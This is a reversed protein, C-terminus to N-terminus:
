PRPGAAAAASQRAAPPFIATWLGVELQHTTAPTFAKEAALARISEPMTRRQGPPLQNVAFADAGPIGLTFKDADVHMDCDAVLNPPMLVLTADALRYGAPQTDLLWTLTYARGDRPDVLCAYRVMAPVHEGHRVWTAPSDVIAMTPSRAVILIQNLHEETKELVMSAVWSLNAGLQRYSPHSHSLITDKGDVQTGQGIALRELQFRRQGAVDHAGVKILIANFFLGALKITSQSVKSVDGSTVRPQSKIVLQSWGPPARDVIVTGPEIREMQRPAFPASPSQALAASATLACLAAAAYTGALLTRIM